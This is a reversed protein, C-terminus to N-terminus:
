IKTSLNINFLVVWMSKNLVHCNGINNASVSSTNCASYCSERGFLGDVWAWLKPNLDWIRYSM